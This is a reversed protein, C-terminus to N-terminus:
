EHFTNERRRRRLNGECSDNCLVTRVHESRASTRIRCCPVRALDPTRCFFRPKCSGPAAAAAMNVRHEFPLLFRSVRGVCMCVKAGTPCVYLM